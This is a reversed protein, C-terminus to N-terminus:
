KQVVNSLRVVDAGYDETVIANQADVRVKAAPAMEGQTPTSVLDLLVLGLDYGAKPKADPRDGGVFHIAQATVLTILRGLGVTRVYAYKVPTTQNGVQISGVDPRKALLDRAATGGKKVAAVLADRESETAFTRITATVKASAETGDARKVKADAAFTEARTQASVTAACAVVAAGITCARAFDSLALRIM